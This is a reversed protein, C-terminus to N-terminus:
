CFFYRSGLFCVAGIVGFAVSQFVIRNPTEPYGTRQTRMGVVRRVQIGFWKNLVLFDGGADEYFKAMAEERGLWRMEHSVYMTLVLLTM